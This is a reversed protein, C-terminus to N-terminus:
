RFSNCDGVESLGCPNPHFCRPSLSAKEIFLMAHISAVGRYLPQVVSCKLKIVAHLADNVSM